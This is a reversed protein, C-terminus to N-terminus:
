AGEYKLYGSALITLNEAENSTSLILASRCTVFQEDPVTCSFFYFLADALSEDSHSTTMIGQVVSDPPSDGVVAEDIIDHVRECDPGWTCFYVCRDRIMHQALDYILEDQIKSADMAFFCVFYGAFVGQPIRASTVDEAEILYVNRDFFASRGLLIMAGRNEIKLAELVGSFDPVITAGAFMLPNKTRPSRLRGKGSDASRDM